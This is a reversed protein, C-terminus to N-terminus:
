RKQFNLKMIGFAFMFLFVFVWVLHMGAVVGLFDHKYGFSDEMYQRVSLPNGTNDPDSIFTEIDGLQSAVVGYLTWQIPNAWAYWRWWVPINKRPIMFGCFLNWFTFLFTTIIAAFHVNPTIAVCMMGYYTFYLLTCFLFFMFYFFKVATWEFSIMPYAVLMFLVTQVFVYPIEIMAQAFAYPLASYMGAGRERYYVTREVDVVPQVTSTNSFGLFLAAAYIAGILNSLDQITDTKGGLNWFISGCLLAIATTFLLQVANYYPNRWYSWHQKWLCAMCQQIFPQSYTTTFSLDESGPLPISLQKILEQNQQYLTSNRYIEAFDVGLQSEASPSSVDLMWAAPNYGQKIQPVGPIAQFYDVLHCSQGGLPGGFIVQGGRKLLLLEDFSEFIDISPQHITCVVTRGTDVTNRVARMVIAAARADLGSTPEDMFIISPNAILEVAITLRKRQETSLGNVGPLGVLANRLSSLEVLEMIEEVFITRKSKDIEAPLRLWASYLLSELVTVNPSHIDNQECYGSIRAFTEQKKPYGSICIEGTIYGGTKRGALVDMLTSKGAGSVGVLATLVGPRFAGSVDRLLQLKDESVGQAKIEPPMDVYYNVANFAISLPKFPLVMGKKEDVSIVDAIDDAEWERCSKGKIVQSDTESGLAPVRLKQLSRTSANSHDAKTDEEPIVAQPRGLPNLYTLAMMFLVNYLVAFGILGGIAIWYWYDETFFGRSKLIALGITQADVSGNYPKAWRDALFENIVLGNQAYMTPSIWYVWIWWKPIQDKAIVFGGLVFIVLLFAIGYSSAIIMSRGIAGILRFLGLAMQSLCFFLLLQSFFRSPGPAFGIVYYTFCVWILCELLSLPIRIIMTPISYAWAPYFLLDRQKYFVPLRSVVGAMENFGNFMIMILGYFLAGMYLNADAVSEQHLETRLFVTMTAITAVTIQFAEFIYLFSNRRTLLWERWICAKLLGSKPLGYMQNSLAAPHSKSKDFPRVLKAQLEQGVHFSKFSESFERVSIYRYSKNPDAWYQAQDKRSTVEQLFDAVNKREPCEFGMSQFFNLILARPGQYIIEGESLLIVDDFLEFTEPAPQLLAIVMTVDMVHVINQLCKVIQFTTSSDLGTSIEDMFFAQAPGVLLEGTTVRKRQGGSIGRRMQDGVLTDACIDLGLVRLVYDTVISTEQGAMAIAKMFVDIDPDPKIGAAKERRCLESLMDPVM